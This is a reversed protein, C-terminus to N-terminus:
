GHQRRLFTPVDLDHQNYVRLDLDQQYFKDEEKIESRAEKGTSVMLTLILEESMNEDTYIGFSPTTLNNSEKQLLVLIRELQDLPFEKGAHISLLIGNAKNLSIRGWFPSELVQDFAEEVYNEGRGKGRNIIIQNGKSLFSNFDAFDLNIIGSNYLIYEISCLLMEFLEDIKIFAEEVSLSSSNPNERSMRLLVNNSIAVQGDTLQELKQLGEKASNVRKEGEFYFPLIFFGITLIGIERAIKLIVPSAGTGIGRGLGCVLFLLDTGSLISRIEDEAEEAIRRAIEKDEGTGWGRVVSTGLQLKDFGVCSELTRKCSDIGVFNVSASYKSPSYIRSLINCGAGGVGIVKIKVSSAKTEKQKKQKKEQITSEFEIL